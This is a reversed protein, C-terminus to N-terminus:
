ATGQASGVTRRELGRTSPWVFVGDVTVGITSPDTEPLSASPSGDATCPSFKRGVPGSGRRTSTM